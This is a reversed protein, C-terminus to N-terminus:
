PKIRIQGDPGMFRAGSPLANFEEDSSIKTAGGPNPQVQSPRLRPGDKAYQEPTTTYHAHTSITPAHALRDRMLQTQNDQTNDASANDHRYNEGGQTTVTDGSPTLHQFRDEAARLRTDGSPNNHKYLDAQVRYQDNGEGARNHRGTEDSNAADIDLRGLGLNYTNNLQKERFANETADQASAAREKRRQDVFGAGANIGAGLGGTLTAAGSRLLAARGEDSHLFDGIRDFLGNSKTLTPPSAAAHLAAGGDGLTEAPQMSPLSSVVAGMDGPPAIKPGPQVLDGMESPMPPKDTMAAGHKSLLAQVVSRGVPDAARMGAMGMNGGGGGMARALADMLGMGM